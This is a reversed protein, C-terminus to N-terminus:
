RLSLEFTNEDGLGFVLLLFFDVIYITNLWDLRGAALYLFGGM